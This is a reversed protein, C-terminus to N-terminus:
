IWNETKMELSCSRFHKPLIRDGLSVRAIHRMGDSWRTSSCNAKYIVMSIKRLQVMELIGGLGVSGVWFNVPGLMDLKPGTPTQNVQVRIKNRSTSWKEDCREFLMTSALSPYLIMAIKVKINISTKGYGNSPSVLNSEMLLLRHRM